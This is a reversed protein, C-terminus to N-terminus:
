PRPTTARSLRDAIAAWLGEPRKAPLVEPWPREILLLAPKTADADRLAAYLRAAYASADRPMGIAFHPPAVRTLHATLVAAHEGEGLSRLERELESPDVLRAPAAPAYHTGIEGPSRAPAPTSTGPPSGAFPRCPVIDEGLAAALEEATILGPRLVRIPDCTVDVVTSEIGGVCPGGDLIFVTGGPFSERVHDARTPSVCGSRNASPGVLPEDLAELLALTLPHRPARVAVTPGDATVVGPVEPAKPLVLTLPGPWFEAALATAVAPWRACVRRAMTDDVVHVILPNTAPRGKACFVEAVARADLAPAGLGYVTETPFAVLGGRRLQRVAAAIDEPGSQM